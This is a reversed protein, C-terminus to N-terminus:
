TQFQCCSSKSHTRGTPLSVRRSALASWSSGHVAWAYSCHFAAYEHAFSPVSSAFTPFLSTRWVLSSFTSVSLLECLACGCVRLCPFPLLQLALLILSSRQPSPPHASSFRARPGARQQLLQSLTLTHSPLTFLLQLHLLMTMTRACAWRLGLACRHFNHHGSSVDHCPLLSTDTRPLSSRLAADAVFSGFM